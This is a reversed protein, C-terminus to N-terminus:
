NILSLITEQILCAAAELAAAVDPSFGEGLKVQAAEIGIIIITGPMDEARIKRGLSLTEAVGWGHASRSGDLYAALDADRLTVLKGPQAGSLIADVMIAADTNELLNLLSIGPSEALEIRIKPNRATAPYTKEWLRVAALGSEDDGRLWQGIGIVTINM